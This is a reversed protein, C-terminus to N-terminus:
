RIGKAVLFEKFAGALRSLSKQQLHVIFWQRKIPLGKINLKIIEGSALENEVSSESMFAIGLGALICQKIAENSSLAMRVNLKCKHERFYTETALRIGSGEERIIFHENELAKPAISKKGALPHGSQAVAILRNTAFPIAEVKIKEPPQGLIYLDDKNQALRELVAKRNGIFLSPEAGPHIASFEGLLRPIFYKATTILAIRIHGKELNDLLAMEQNLTEMRDFIDRCAMAVLNGAETLYIKKGIQELLPQGVAETLQKIQISVASPTLHLAEATRAVSMHETLTNFIKLQHLTAHRLAM